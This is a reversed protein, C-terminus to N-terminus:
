KSDKKAAFFNYIRPYHKKYYKLNEPDMIGISVGWAALTKSWSAPLLPIKNLKREALKNQLRVVGMGGIAAVGAGAVGLAGAIAMERRMKRASANKKARAIKKKDEEKKGM